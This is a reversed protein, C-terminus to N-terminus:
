LRRVCRFGIVYNAGLPTGYARHACRALRAYDNWGGGRLLRYSGSSPGRTDNQTAGGNSYWAADYWDWCWEWVNGAMDGLGYGNAAFYGVPSTYPDIGDNFTPHYGRTPSTDYAYSSSSYYNARSHQITDTDSWPFRHGAAGGRAAKEWEAETPLRYGNANWKVYPAGQGTKYITTLGADTYYCPTWGEKQSRANCWKVVDFWNVTHVPHNAAKGSGANDYSYGNGGNWAKVTDWLSKTVECRDMYFASVYVTHRPVEESYGDGLADGMQFSGAAILVMSGPASDSATVQVRVQSSFQNPWDLGANWEIHRDNGPTVTGVAGTVNVPVLSYAAGGDTSVTVSVVPAGPASLNYYIDVIQTGARQTARVNTVSPAALTSLSLALSAATLLVMQGM